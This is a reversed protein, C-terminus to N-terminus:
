APAVKRRSRVLAAGSLALLLLTSHEPVSTRNQSADRAVLFSQSSTIPTAQFVSFEYAQYGWGAWKGINLNDLLTTM